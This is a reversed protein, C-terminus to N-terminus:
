LAMVSQRFRDGREAFDVFEDFSTGGPALLVVDGAEARRAALEIAGALTAARDITTLRDGAGAPGVAAAIKDAAEGFLVLHDVRRRVLDAFASWDLDKDRGGALLVIPEEFALIAAMSREPTTAISDDYWDAGDVRRVFELRHPVGTFEAIARAMHRVEIGFALASACAALVNLVNHDGRVRIADRPTVTHLAGGSVVAVNDGIVTAGDVGQPLSRGFALWRGRVAPVLDRAGRDDTGLVAVDESSQFDLIRRKAATYAAMTKHRDLHNPTVNLVVAVQPSRTMVELQFSSLEMVVVDDGAIRGLDELLPRGINGGVWAAAGRARAWHSAMQGLLATTTTKGASGTIGIVPAPSEELFIQSDNTVPVGTRRAQQALPLDAPVGGSLCLLDAGDILTEPHGGLAYEVPLGALDRISEGLEKETRLDTIVIDAGLGAFYRALAKGQRALGVIVVRRGRGEAL